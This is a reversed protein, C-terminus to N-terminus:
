FLPRWTFFLVAILGQLVCSIAIWASTHRSPLIAGLWLFAPFLVSTMRGISMMGGILMPPLINVATFAAYGIGFRRATPWLSAVVFIAAATNMVDYPETVTYGYFGATSIAEYRDTWLSSIGGWLGAYVRGWALQGKRWALADGFREYLFLSYALIGALPAIVPACAALVVRRQRLMETGVLIGAPIAILFGNPRCLALFFGWAAARWWQQRRLHYFTGLSGLLYFGETYPASYFVAFPYAALAWVATRAQDRELLETALRHLYLLACFFAVSALLLGAALWHKGLFAGVVRMATPFAPFFVVNQQRKPNGDWRYGDTVIGLYWQADWRAPLNELVNDSVRMRESGPVFGITVVALYGVMLVGLRTGVFAPWVDSRAESRWFRLWRAALVQPLTPSRVYLHRLGALVLAFMAPREWSRVSIRMGWVHERFGGFLWVLVAVVVAVLTLWDLVRALRSRPTASSTETRHPPTHM